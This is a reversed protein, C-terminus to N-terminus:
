QNNRRRLYREFEAAIAEGSAEPLDSEDRQQELSAVYESIESDEAALEDVGRMWANALEPLEGPDLSVDLLDELRNLLALVAKPSPPSSVYHPVAAWLHVVETDFRELDEALVGLIGTSGEYTSEPLGLETALGPSDTTVSVPIPRTHPHDALLAGLLFVRRTNATRLASVLLACFQRWRFNPELGQVFIVDRGDPLQGSKVETSPWAIHRQTGTGRIEPRNVQFDYFEDPKISFAQEAGCSDALHEVAQSAANAADNWGAFAILTVPQQLRGLHELGADIQDSQDAM